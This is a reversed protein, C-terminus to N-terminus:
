SGPSRRSIRWCGRDRDQVGLLDVLALALDLVEADLGDVVLGELDRELLRGGVEELEQRVLGAQRDM